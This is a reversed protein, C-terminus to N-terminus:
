QSIALSTTQWRNGERRPDGGVDKLKPDDGAGIGCGEVKNRRFIVFAREGDVSISVLEWGDNEMVELLRDVIPQGGVQIDYLETTQESGLPCSTLAINM